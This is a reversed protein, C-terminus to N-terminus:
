GQSQLRLAPTHGRPRAPRPRTSGAIGPDIFASSLVPDTSPGPLADCMAHGVPRCHRRSAMTSGVPTRHAQLNAMLDLDLDPISGPNTKPPGM